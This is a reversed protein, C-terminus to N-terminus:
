REKRIVTTVSAAIREALPLSVALIRDVEQELKEATERNKLTGTNVFINLAASEMAARCLLAGCGVDTILLRSGKELMEELLLLAAAGCRLIELPALCANYTVEELTEARGPAEKPIAYARTLPELALADAQALELFRRRLTEGEALLRQIDEEVPAFKKKGATFNGAMSCLAIGLAGAMAAASGGGPTSVKAALIDAFDSCSLNMLHNM